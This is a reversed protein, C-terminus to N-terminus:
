EKIEAIEIKKGNIDKWFFYNTKPCFPNKIMEEKTYECIIERSFIPCFSIGDAGLEEMRELFSKM